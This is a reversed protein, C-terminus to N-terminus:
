KRNIKDDFSYWTEPQEKLIAYLYLGGGLENFYENDMRLYYKDSFQTLYLVIVRFTKDWFTIPESGDAFRIHLYLKQEQPTSQEEPLFISAKERDYSEESYGVSREFKRGDYGNELMEDIESNNDPKEYWETFIKQAEDSNHAKVAVTATRVETFKFEYIM